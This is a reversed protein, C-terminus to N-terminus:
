ARKAHSVVSLLSTKRQHPDSKGPKLRNKKAPRRGNRPERDTAFLGGDGACAALCVGCHAPQTCSGGRWLPARERSDRAACQLACSSEYRTAMAYRTAYLPIVARERSLADAM